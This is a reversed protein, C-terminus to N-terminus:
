PSVKAVRVKLSLSLSLSFDPGSLPSCAHAPTVQKKKKEKMGPPPIKDCGTVDRDDSGRLSVCALLYTAYSNFSAKM